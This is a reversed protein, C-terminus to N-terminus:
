AKNTEVAYLSAGDRIGSRRSEIDPGLRGGRDRVEGM